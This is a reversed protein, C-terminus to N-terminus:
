SRLRRRRQLRERERRGTHPWRPRHQRHQRRGPRPLDTAVCQSMRLPGVLDVLLDQALVRVDHRRRPRARISGPTTWWRTWVVLRPTFLVWSRLFPIGTVSMVPSAWSTRAPKGAIEKAPPIASIRSAGNVVVSAGAERSVRRGHGPRDGENLRHRDGGQGHPRVPEEREDCHIVWARRLLRCQQRRSLACPADEDLTDLEPRYLDIPEANGELHPFDSSFVCMEPLVALFELADTDGLGPLPTVRVNRRLM